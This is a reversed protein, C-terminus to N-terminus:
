TSYSSEKQSEKLSKLKNASNSFENILQSIEDKNSSSLQIDFEENGLNEVVKTLQKLPKLKNIISLYLFAFGSIIVGYLMVAIWLHNPVPANNQLLVEFRKTRIYVYLKNELKVDYIKIHRKRDIHLVQLEKENMISDIMKKNQILSFNFQQLTINLESMDKQRFHERLFIHAVDENRKHIFAFERKQYLDYLVVFGITLFIFAIFFTINITFLISNKKM